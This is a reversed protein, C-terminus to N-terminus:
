GRIYVRHGVCLLGEADHGLILIRKDQGGACQLQVGVLIIICELSSGLSSRNNYYDSILGALM